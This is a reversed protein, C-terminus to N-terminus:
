LSRPQWGAITRRPRRASAILWQRRILASSASMGLVNSQTSAACPLFIKWRQGPSATSTFITM